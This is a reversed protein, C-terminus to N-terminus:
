VEKNMQLHAPETMYAGTVENFGYTATVKAQQSSINESTFHYPSAKVM